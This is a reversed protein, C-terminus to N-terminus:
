GASGTKPSDFHELEAEMGRIDRVLSDSSVLSVRGECLLLHKDSHGSLYHGERIIRKIPAKYRPQRFCEGTPSFSGKVGKAKLTNLVPVVGDSIRLIDKTMRVTRRSSLISRRKTSMSEASWVTRLKRVRKFPAGEMQYASFPFTLSATGDMTPENTSYDHPSGHYVITGPQVDLYNIGGEMNVGKLGSFIASYVPGDVLGGSTNGLNLNVIFSHPQTPYVEAGPMQVIMCVGWPQVGVALGQARRGDGQLDRRWYSSSLSHVPHANRDYIIPVGSQHYGMFSLLGKQRRSHGRSEPDSTASLSRWSEPTAMKPLTFIPGYEHVPVVSLTARGGRGMWPTVQEGRAYEIAQSLYKEDGTSHSMEVTALEMDDVWNDEEYIYPSVM